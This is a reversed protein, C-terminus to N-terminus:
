SASGLRRWPDSGNLYPDQTAKRQLVPVQDVYQMAEDSLLRRPPTPVFADM